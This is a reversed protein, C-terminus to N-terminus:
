PSDHSLSTRIDASLNPLRRDEKTKASTDKWDFIIHDWRDELDMAIEAEAGKLRPRMYEALRPTLPLGITNLCETSFELAQDVCKGAISIALKRNRGEVSKPTTPRLGVNGVKSEKEQTAIKKRLNGAALHEGKEEAFRLQIKLKAIDAAVEFETIKDTISNAKNTKSPSLALNGLVKSGFTASFKNLESDCWLAIAALASAPVVKQNQFPASIITSSSESIDDKANGGLFLDLFGEVSTALCSFFSQSLQAAYIVVDMNNTTTTDCIPREHLCETLLLSRRASYATAADQARGLKVLLQLSTADDNLAIPSVLPALASLPDAREKKAAQKLAENKRRLGESLRNCMRDTCNDISRLIRQMTALQKKALKKESLKEHMNLIETVETKAKFLLEAADAYRCEKIFASIEETAEELWAPVEVQFSAADQTSNKKNDVGGSSGSTITTATTGKSHKNSHRRHHKDWSFSETSDITDHSKNLFIKNNDHSKSLLLPIGRQDDDNDDDDSSEESPDDEGYDSNLGAGDDPRNDVYDLEFDVNKMAEITDVQKGVLEKLSMVERGMITMERSAEVFYEYQELVAGRLGKKISSQWRELTLCMAPSEYEEHKMYFKNVWGMEEFIIRNGFQLLAEEVDKQEDTEMVGALVSINNGIASASASANNNNGVQQNGTGDTDTHLATRRFSRMRGGVTRDPSSGHARGNRYPGTFFESTGDQDGNPRLKTDKKYIDARIKIAKAWFDRQGIGDFILYAPARRKNATSKNDQATNTNGGNNNNNTTTTQRVVHRILMEYGNKANTKSHERFTRRGGKPFEVVTRELPIVGHPPANFPCQYRLSTSTNFGGIDGGGIGNIDGIAAGGGGAAAGDIAVDNMDFYFVYSGRLCFYRKPFRPPAQDSITDDDDLEFELHGLVADPPPPEPMNDYDLVRPMDEARFPRVQDEDQDSNTNSNSPSKTEDKKKNKKENENENIKENENENKKENENQEKVQEQDQNEVQDEVQDKVQNSTSAPVSADNKATKPQHIAIRPIFEGNQAPSPIFTVKEFKYDKSRGSSSTM